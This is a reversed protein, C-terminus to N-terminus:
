RRPTLLFGCTACRVTSIANGCKPCDTAGDAERQTLLRMFEEGDIDPRILILATPIISTDFELFLAFSNSKKPTKEFRIKM